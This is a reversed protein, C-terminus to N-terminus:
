IYFLSLKVKYVKLKPISFTHVDSKNVVDSIIEDYPLGLNKVQQCVKNDGYFSINGYHKKLTDSLINFM